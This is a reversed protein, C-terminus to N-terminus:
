VLGSRPGAAFLLAVAPGSEGGLALKQARRQGSVAPSPVLM